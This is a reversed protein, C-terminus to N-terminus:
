LPENLLSNLHPFVIKGESEKEDEDMIGDWTSLLFTTELNVSAWKKWEWFSYACTRRDISISFVLEPITKISIVSKSNSSDM